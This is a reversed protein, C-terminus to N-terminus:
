NKESGNDKHDRGCKCQTTLPKLHSGLKVPEVFKPNVEDILGRVFTRAAKFRLILAGGLCGGIAVGVGQLTSIALSSLTEANHTVAYHVASITAAAVILLALTGTAYTFILKMVHKVIM